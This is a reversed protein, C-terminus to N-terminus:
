AERWVRLRNLRTGADHERSAAAKWQRVSSVHGPSAVVRGELHVGPLCSSVLAVGAIDDAHGLAHDHGLLRDGIVLREVDKSSGRLSRVDLSRSFPRDSRGDLPRIPEIPIEARRRSRRATAFEAVPHFAPRRAQAWAREQCSRAESQSWSLGSPQVGLWTMSTRVRRLASWRRGAPCAKEGVSGPRTKTPDVWRQCPSVRRRNM